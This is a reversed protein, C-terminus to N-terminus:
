GSGEEVEVLRHDGLRRRQREALREVLGAEDATAGEHLKAEGLEEVNEEACVLVLELAGAVLQDFQRRSPMAGLDLLEDFLREFLDGFREHVGLRQEEDVLVLPLSAVDVDHRRARHLDHARDSTM